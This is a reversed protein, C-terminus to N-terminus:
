TQTLKEGKMMVSNDHWLLTVLKFVQLICRRWQTLYLKTVPKKETLGMYTFPLCGHVNDPFGLWVTEVLYGSNRPDIKKRKCLHLSSDYRIGAKALNVFTNPSVKLYHVRSGYVPRWCHKRNDERQSIEEVTSTNNSHLGVEWGNKVLTKITDEYQQIRAEMMMSPRFFFTYPYQITGRNGM